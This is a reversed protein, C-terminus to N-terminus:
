VSVKLVGLSVTCIAVDGRWSRGDECDVEVGATDYRLTCVRCGFHIDLGEAM